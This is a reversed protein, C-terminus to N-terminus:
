SGSGPVIGSVSWPLDCRLVEGDCLGGLCRRAGASRSRLSGAHECICPSDTTLFSIVTIVVMGFCLWQSSAIRCHGAYWHARLDRGLAYASAPRGAKWPEAA